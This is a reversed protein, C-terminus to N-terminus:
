SRDEEENNKLWMRLSRGDISCRLADGIHGLREAAANIDEHDTRRHLDNYEELIGEVYVMQEDNEDEYEAQDPYLLRSMMTSLVGAYERAILIAAREAPLTPIDKGMVTVGAEESAQVHDHHVYRIVQCILEDDEGEAMENLHCAITHAIGHVAATSANMM